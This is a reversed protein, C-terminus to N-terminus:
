FRSILMGGDASIVQGTVYPLGGTALTAVMRGIDEPQGLRPIVTLGEDEIRRRYIDKVGKTMDTEILGPQVDFVSINEAGLRVSFARSIM